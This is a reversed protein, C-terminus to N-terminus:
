PQAVPRADPRAAADVPASGFRKARFSRATNAIVEPDVTNLANSALVLQYFVYNGLQNQLAAIKEDDNAGPVVFTVSDLLLTYTLARNADKIAQLYGSDQEDYIPGSKTMDKMPAKPWQVQQRRFFVRAESLARLPVKVSEGDPLEVTVDITQGGLEDLSTITRPETM